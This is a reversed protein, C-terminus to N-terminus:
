IRAAIVDRVHTTQCAGCTWSRVNLPKKTNKHSCGTLYYMKRSPFWRDMYSRERRNTSQLMWPTSGTYVAPGVGPMERPVKTRNQILEPFIDGHDGPSYQLLPDAVGAVRVGRLRFVPTAPTAGTQVAGAGFPVGLMDSGPEVENL